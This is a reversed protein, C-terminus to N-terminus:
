YDDAQLRGTAILVEHPLVGSDAAILSAQNLTAEDVFGNLLFHYDPDHLRRAGSLDSSSM